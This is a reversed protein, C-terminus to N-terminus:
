LSPPPPQIRQIQGPFRQRNKEIKDLLGMFDKPVKEVDKPTNIPGNFAIKGDPSICILRKGNVPDIMLTATRGDKTVTFTGASTGTASMTVAQGGFVQGMASGHTPPQQANAGRPLGGGPVGPPAPGNTQSGPGPQRRGSRGPQQFPLHGPGRPTLPNNENFPPFPPMPMPVIHRDRFMSDVPPLDKESLKVKVTEKRGGRRIEMRVEDGPKRMRVLVALQEANILIQDDIKTLVDFPKLLGNAPGNPDVSSVTLGTGEPLGLQARVAPDVGSIGIGLFTGKVLPQRKQQMMM